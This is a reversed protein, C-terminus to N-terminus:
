SKKRGRRLGILLGTVTLFGATSPEPIANLRFQLASGAYLFDGQFPGANTYTFDFLNFDSTEFDILTYTQGVVWGNDVFTFAWPGSGSKGLNLEVNILDSAAANVGLDFRVTAGAGWTLYDTFYLRGASFGPDLVATGGVTVDGSIFGNGSVFGASISNNAGNLDLVGQGVLDLSGGTQTFDGAVQLITASGDLLINGSNVLAGTTNFVRGNRLTFNGQVNNLTSDLPTDTSRTFFNSGTGVLEVAAAAGITSISSTADNLFRITGGGSGARWTGSNLVGGSNNQVIASGDFQLTGGNRAEFLGSGAFEGGGSGTLTILGGNARVTGQNNFSVNGSGANVPDVTMGFGSGAEVIGQNTIFISNFGLNGSGSITNNVNTLTQASGDVGGGAGTMHLTGGGTLSTDGALRFFTSNGGWNLTMTGSNNITNLLRTVGSDQRLFNGSISVNNLVQNQGLVARIEGGSSAALTTNQVIVDNILDIRAGAGTAQYTGSGGFEGAGNGSLAIVGNGTARVTGQNDFAVIGAGANAPDVTMFFGGAGAEVIGQNTVFISNFGLNGSGSITNDVNTLTNNSGDIGGNGGTMHVTGGGTLSTDGALRFATPNGGWNLTMTGSNNITNLLRTVGSDQRLFNGSISVNNLLQDQGTVGRIEGGSSAALTTNQVIVDNILDIRAGAGNAQYTGSGGFEGAGNGSLAIVGNGTARVTGQNDFAVIGAGANAPDILMSFGGGAEVIGQNTVFVTNSGLNGSGSITNDVNTLRQFSGDIGGGGGTMHVTGGGTLSTDGALRFATPNGGWNLTMTGSNNIANLLRTVGSDQRVFNGSISVNNLVQNHGTVGRIEGGSSAALTTNQVVVDNILDIRAGVGNAQYSGSGGFEGAGIGSLTIVGNALARVTGVNNFGLIGAGANAPDLTMAFGSGAEVIGQNTVFVTNSGLNGSGSITNDVNTLRQLSGDFGGGGGTMHVTGGGTLSTDGALRFFTDNGGWNLTMTGSNNITNLLRTVGSDQRVFNGSISVGDLVQNHGSSARIEGGSATALNTNRLVVDNILEIRSGAGTALYTGVGGFEGAGLGTLTVAGGGTARVTGQNDFSVGGSNFPDILMSFGGTAEVVGQNVISLTNAGLNGSGSITHLAGNTLQTGFVGGISAAVGSMNISGTGGITANSGFNLATPNGGSNINITGSNNLVGGVIGLSFSEGINLVDGTSVHLQNVTSNINLLTTSNGANGNDIFVNWTTGGNGNNPVFGGSWLAVNSWNGAGGTWTTNTQSYVPLCWYLGFFMVVASAALAGRKPTHPVPIENTSFAGLNENAFGPNRWWQEFKMM